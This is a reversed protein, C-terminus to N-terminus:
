CDATLPPTSNTCIAAYQIVKLTDYFLNGPQSVTTGSNMETVEIAKLKARSSEALCTLYQLDWSVTIVHMNLAEVMLHMTPFVLPPYGETFIDYILRLKKLWVSSDQLSSIRTQPYISYLLTSFLIM